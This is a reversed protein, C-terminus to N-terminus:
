AGIILNATLVGGPGLDAASCRGAGRRRDLDPGAPHLSGAAAVVLPDATACLRPAPGSGRDSRAQRHTLVLAPLTHGVLVATLLFPGDPALRTSLTLLPWGVGVALVLVLFIMLSRPFRSRYPTLDSPRAM